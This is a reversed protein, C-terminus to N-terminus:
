KCSVLPCRIRAYQAPCHGKRIVSPYRTVHTENRDSHKNKLRAIRMLHENFSVQMGEQGSLFSIRQQLVNSVHGPLVSVNLRVVDHSLRCTGEVEPSSLM